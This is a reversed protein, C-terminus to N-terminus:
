GCALLLEFAGHLDAEDFIELEDGSTERRLWVIYYAALYRM